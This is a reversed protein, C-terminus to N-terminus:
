RTTLAQGPAAATPPFDSSFSGSRARYYIRMISLSRWNGQLQTSGILGPHLMKGNLWLLFFALLLDPRMRRWAKQPINLAEHIITEAPSLLCLMEKMNLSFFFFRFDSIFGEFINLVNMHLSFYKNM